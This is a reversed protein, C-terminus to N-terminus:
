LHLLRIHQPQSSSELPSLSGHGRKLVLTSTCMHTGTRVKTHFTPGELQLLLTPTDKAQQKWGEQGLREAGKGSTKPGRSRPFCMKM